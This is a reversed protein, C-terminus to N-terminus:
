VNGPKCFVCIVTDNDGPSKGEVCVAGVLRLYEDQKRAYDKCAKVPDGDCTISPDKIHVVEPTGGNRRCEDKWADKQADADDEDTADAPLGYCLDESWDEDDYYRDWLQKFANGAVTIGAPCLPSYLVCLAIGGLLDAIDGITGWTDLTDALSNDACEMCQGMTSSERCASLQALVEDRKGWRVLDVTLSAAALGYSNDGSIGGDEYRESIQLSATEGSGWNGNGAALEPYNKVQALFLGAGIHRVAGDSREEFFRVLAASLDSDFLPITSNTDPSYATSVEAEDFLFRDYTQALPAPLELQPDQQLQAPAASLDRLLIQDQDVTEGWFWESDRITYHIGYADLQAAIFHCLAYIGTDSLGFLDAVEHWTLVVEDAPPMYGRLVDSLALNRDDSDDPIPLAPKCLYCLSDAYARLFCRKPESPVSPKGKTLDGKERDRSTVIDLYYRDEVLWKKDRSKALFFHRKLVLMGILSPEESSLLSIRFERAAPTAAEAQTLITALLLSDDIFAFYIHQNTKASQAQVFDDELLQLDYHAGCLLINSAWKSLSHSLEEDQARRSYNDSETLLQRFAALKNLNSLDVTM